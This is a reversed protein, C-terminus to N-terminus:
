FGRVRRKAGVEGVLPSTFTPMNKPLWVSTGTLFCGFTKQRTLLPSILPQLSTEFAELILPVRKELYEQPVTIGTEEKVRMAMSKDSIGAYKKIFDETSIPYGLQTLYQADIKCGIVESDVLVGDCDFILLTKM